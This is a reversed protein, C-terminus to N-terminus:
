NVGPFNLNHRHEQFTPYSNNAIQSLTRRTMLFLFRAIAWYALVTLFDDLVLPKTFWRDFGGSLAFHRMEESMYATVAIVLLVKGQGATIKRARQVLTFGDVEPLAIECVLIDPQWQALIKLAEQALLAKRVEVGYFKLMFEILDCCDVNNDVFLVRLGQFFPFDDFFRNNKAM